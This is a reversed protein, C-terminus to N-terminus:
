DKNNENQVLYYVDDKKGRPVESVTDKISTHQLFQLVKETELFRGCHLSKGGPLINPVTSVFDADKDDADDNDADGSVNLFATMEDDDDNSVAADAATDDEDDNCVAADAATDDEDDNSVAADAATDDDNDADSIFTEDVVLSECKDQLVVFNNPIFANNTLTIVACTWM